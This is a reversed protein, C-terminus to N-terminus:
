NITKEGGQYGIPLIESRAPDEALVVLERGKTSIKKENVTKSSSRSELENRRPDKNYLSLTSTVSRGKVVSTAERRCFIKKWSQGGRLHHVGPEQDGKRERVHSLRPAPM